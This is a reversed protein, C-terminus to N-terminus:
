RSEYSDNILWPDGTRRRFEQTQRRLEALVTQHASAGALNRVEGPDAAVDYLEEPARFLYDHVRRRGIMGSEGQARVDTWTRSAWLDSAHPFPAQHVLNRLYKYRPTRTGRVPYHMTVEHFTHSFFVLDWGAPRAQELLPLFSRGQLPYEPGRARCFDLITPAIDAWSVMAENTMGRPWGGPPRVILPLHAGADYLNTKANPFPMGNDSLFIVLTNDLRGSQRLVEMLMGVGQDLRNAAQYYEALEARTGPTDPLFSPVQVHQPDFVGKAVGPQPRDNAFGKGARHPDGFAYHLFFPAGGCGEIFKRATEAMRSVNRDMGESLMDWGFAGAPAVHFKGVLGTRYGADKLLLPLTRVHPLLSFHHEAHAHGYQGNAHNHLGTLLVSRSASCSATTAFGHTFRVGEAALRDLHPTRAVTDGYAGTHLGLDDAVVLVVSEVSKSVKKLKTGSAAPAALAATFQRRNLM